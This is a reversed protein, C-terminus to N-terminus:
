ADAGGDARAPAGQTAPTIELLVAGRHEATSPVIELVELRGIGEEELIAGPRMEIELVEETRERRLRLVTFSGDDDALTRFVGLRLGSEDVQGAQQVLHRRPTPGATASRHDPQPTM